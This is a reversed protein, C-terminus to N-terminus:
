KARFAIANEYIQTMQNLFAEKGHKSVVSNRVQHPDFQLRNTKIAILADAVAAFDRINVKIGNAPSLDDDVGGSATCVVPRGVAMAERVAVGFTEAVSTSVFVDCHAYRKPMNERTEHAIFQCVQEVGHQAALQQFCETNAASINHFSNNGIVTVEIDHHGRELLLAVARFFTECDKLPSPYTVTLIRFRAPDKRPEAFQFLEENILNGVVTMPRDIGHLVICRMQHHSVVVLTTATRLAEIMLRRRHEPYNALVFVQHETLVFPIQFERALTATIIGAFEACQAHLLDPKWGKALMRRFAQRYADTAAELVLLDNPARHEYEFGFVPPPDLIAGEELPLMRVGGPKQFWRLRRNAAPRGIGFLIRVDFQQQLLGAQEQFFSGVVPNDKTPYWSPIVLIRRNTAITNM